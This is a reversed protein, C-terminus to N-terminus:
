GKGLVRSLCKGVESAMVDVLPDEFKEKLLMDLLRRLGYILTTARPFARFSAVDGISIVHGDHLSEIAGGFMLISIPSAPTPDMIYIKSTALKRNFAFHGFQFKTAGFNISSPHIFVRGDNKTFYRIDQARSDIAVTGHAIQEYQKEPLKIKAINPYLGAVVMAKIINSDASNINMEPRHISETSGFYGLNVLIDKFQARRDSINDLNHHSLYNKSCFNRRHTSPQQMWATFANCVTLLDSDGDIFQKRAITADAQDQPDSPFIFPSKESLCAVITLVPDVCKFIAGFLLMKSLRLDAPIASMHKGLSTLNHDQDLASVTKLIDIASTITEIPPPTIAKSLFGAINQIDMARIQLCLQELPTRLIEPDPYASMRSKEFHSSYLKFCFGSKVRGARGRRQRCAAQSSWAEALTVIGEQVTIEKVKGSDIVFVVDDITISTEAINTAVVIKRESKRSPRFIKSQENNTLNAHLPYICLGEHRLAPNLRLADICRKIDLVGPLFILIAGEQHNRCIYAVTASILNFDIRLSKGREAAALSHSINEDLGKNAWITDFGDEEDHTSSAPLAKGRSRSGYSPIDPTYDVMGLLSELHYDTVPYTFGPITMVNCSFYSSFTDANITASMLIVKLSDRTFLLDRLLILLFDSEVSREHVEDIIVHSVGVLNSDGLLMRLLIGTTCFLLKTNDCRSTDGRVAYGISDGVTECREDSVRKALAIASLKRPQTCIINCDEAKLRSIHDELIFQGVQTSKGCGTEGCLVLANNSRLEKCIMEKFQASPLKRRSTQMKVFDPSNLKAAEKDLMENNSLKSKKTTSPRTRNRNKSFSSASTHNKSALASEPTTNSHTAGTSTSLLPNGSIEDVAENVLPIGSSDSIALQTLLPPNKVIEGACEEFIATLTYIMQTGLLTSAESVLKHVIGLRIYAPLSAQVVIAPLDYPYTSEPSIFISLKSEIGDLVEPRLDVTISIGEPNHAIQVHSDFISRLVEIEEELLERYDATDVNESVTTTGNKGLLQKCLRTLAVYEKGYSEDLFTACRQRPFGWGNLRQIIYERGLSETTHSSLAMTTSDNRGLHAPFDDDPVHACLWEMVTDYNVSFTVAERVHAERFGQVTFDTILRTAALNSAVASPHHDGKNSISLNQILPAIGAETHLLSDSSLHSFNLRLLEEIASIDDQSIGISPYHNWRGSLKSKEREIAARERSQVAKLQDRERIEQAMFPDTSYKFDADSGTYAKRITEYNQWLDRQSPPLLRYASTNHALHHLVFTAAASEVDDDIPDIPDEVVHCFSTSAHRAEQEAECKEPAKWHVYRVTSTKKDLKGLRVSCIWGNGDPDKRPQLIPKQWGQKQCHESLLNLPTKGTWSTGYLQQKLPLPAPGEHSTNSGVATQEEGKSGKTTGKSSKSRKSKESGAANPATPQSRIIKPPM